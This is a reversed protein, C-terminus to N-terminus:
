KEGKNLQARLLKMLREEEAQKPTYSKVEGYYGPGYTLKEAVPVPAPNERNAKNMQESQYAKSGPNTKKGVSGKPQMVVDAQEELWDKLKIGEREKGSMGNWKDMLQKKVNTPILKEALKVAAGGPVYTILSGLDEPENPLIDEALNAAGPMGASKLTSIAAKRPSAEIIGPEAETSNMSAEQQAAIEKLRKRKLGEPSDDFQEAQAM